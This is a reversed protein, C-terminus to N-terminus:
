VAETIHITKLASIMMTENDLIYIYCYSKASIYFGAIYQVKDFKPLYGMGAAGPKGDITRSYLRITDKDAGNKAFYDTIGSTSFDSTMDLRDKDWQRIWIQAKCLHTDYDTYSNGGLDESSVPKSINTDNCPVGLDVTVNFPGTQFKTTTNSASAINCISALVVAVLIIEIRRM